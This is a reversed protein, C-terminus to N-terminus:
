RAEVPNVSFFFTSGARLESEVWLKHGMRQLVRACFALGIGSGRTGDSRESYLYDFIRERSEPPIGRGDDRVYVVTGHAEDVRTGIEIHLESDDEERAHILANRLLNGLLHQMQSKPGRIRPLPLIRIETGRTRGSLHLDDVVERALTAFDIDELEAVSEAESFALMDSTFRALGNLAQSAYQLAKHIEPPLAGAPLSDVLSLAMIGSHLQNKVEHAVIGAFRHLDQNSRELLLNRKRVLEIIGSRVEATLEATIDPWPLSKGRVTEQWAAFSSRPQLRGSADTAKGPNPDGGWEIKRVAEDRFLVLWAHEGLHIAVMGAARPLAAALAPFRPATHDTVLTGHESARALERLLPMLLSPEPASGEVRIGAASLVAGGDAAFLKVLEPLTAGLSGVPDSYDKLRTVVDFAARRAASLDAMEWARLKARLHASM